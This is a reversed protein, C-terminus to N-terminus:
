RDRPCGPAEKRRGRSTSGTWAAQPEHGVLRRQATVWSALQRPRKPNVRSARPQSACEPRRVSPNSLAWLTRSHVGLGLEILAYALLGNGCCQRTTVSGDLSVRTLFLLPAREPGQKWSGRRAGCSRWGTSGVSKMGPKGLAAVEHSHPHM